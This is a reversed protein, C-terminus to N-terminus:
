LKILHSLQYLVGLCQNSGLGPWSGSDCSCQLILSSVFGSDAWGEGRPCTLNKDYYIGQQLCSMEGGPQVFINYGNVESADLFCESLCSPASCIIITTNYYCM